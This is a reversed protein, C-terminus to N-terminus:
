ASSEFDCIRENVVIIEECLKKFQRHNDTERKYKELEPGLPISKAYSKRNVTANWLYQLGHKPHGEQACVCNPKGCKRYNVSTTGRCLDGIASLKRYLKGREAELEKPEKGM